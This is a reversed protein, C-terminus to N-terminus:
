RREWWIRVYDNKRIMGGQGKSNGRLREYIATRSVKEKCAVEVISLGLLLNLWTRRETRNLGYMVERVLRKFDSPEASPPEAATPSFRPVLRKNHLVVDIPELRGDLTRVYRFYTTEDLKKKV